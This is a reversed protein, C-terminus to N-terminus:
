NEVDETISGNLPASNNKCKCQCGPSETSGATGGVITAMDESSLSEGQALVVVDKLSFRKTEM